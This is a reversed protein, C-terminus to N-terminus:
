FFHLNGMFIKYQVNSSQYIAQLNTVFCDKFFTYIEKKRVAQQTIAARIEDQAENHIYTHTCPPGFINLFLPTQKVTCTALSYKILCPLVHKSSSIVKISRSTLKHCPYASICQHSYASTCQCPYASICQCSYASTYICQYM